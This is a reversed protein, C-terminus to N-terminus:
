VVTQTGQVHILAEDLWYRQLVLAAEVVEKAWDILTSIHYRLQKMHPTQQAKEEFVTRERLDETSQLQYSHPM